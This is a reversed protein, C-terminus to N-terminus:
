YKINNNIVNNNRLINEVILETKFAVNSKAEMFGSETFKLHM